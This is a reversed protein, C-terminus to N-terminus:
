VAIKLGERPLPVVANDREANGVDSNRFIMCDSLYLMRTFEPQETEREILLSVIWFAVEGKAGYLDHRLGFPNCVDLREPGAITKQKDMTEVRTKTICNKTERLDYPSQFEIPQWNEKRPGRAPADFVVEVVAITRHASGRLQDFDKPFNTVLSIHSSNM